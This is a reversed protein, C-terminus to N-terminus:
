TPIDAIGKEDEAQRVARVSDELDIRFMLLLGCGFLTALMLIALVQGLALTVAGFAVVGLIGSTQNVMGWVGFFEASRHAPTLAGVMARTSTGLGGLALGVVGSTIWFTWAPAGFHQTGAIGLMAVVWLTLFAIITRKHGIRDQIRAVAASAVGASVATVMAFMLLDGFLFEMENGIISLFNIVALTGFNYVFFTVFFRMLQRFRGVERLSQLMQKMVASVTSASTTGSPPTREHLWLFAPLMGGLFWLGSFVFMPRFDEPNRHGLAISYISTILLLLLAGVYSMTWGVASVYGINQKTSIEPLFAGLFTEGLGCALAALLYITFCLVVDGPGVIVLLVTLVASALGSTMLMERRWAHRDAIAGLIPSMLAILLMSSASMATWLAKGNAPTAGVVETVYLSFLLTKILLQFSQNALDYMGWAFVERGRELRAFPNFRSLLSVKCQQSEQSDMNNESEHYGWAM